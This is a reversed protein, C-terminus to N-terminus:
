KAHQRQNDGAARTIKGVGLFGLEERGRAIVASRRDRAGDQWARVLAERSPYRKALWENYFRTLEEGYFPPIDCWDSAPPTTQQGRLYGSTWALFLSDENTLEIIVVAPDEAYTRGTRPNRHTLLQRAYDKQLEIMRPDFIVCYKGYGLWDAQAVGDAATFKRGVHLNLNLYIGRKSWSPSSITSNRSSARNM